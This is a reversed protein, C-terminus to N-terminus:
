SGLLDPALGPLLKKAGTLGRPVGGGVISTVGQSCKQPSGVGAEEWFGFAALLNWSTPCTVGAYMAVSEQGPGPSRRVWTYPPCFALRGAHSLPSFETDTEERVFRLTRTDLVVPALFSVGFWWCSEQSMSTTAGEGSLVAMGPPSKPPEALLTGQLSILLWITRGGRREEGKGGENERGELIFLLLFM